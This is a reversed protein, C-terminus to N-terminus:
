AAARDLYDVFASVAVFTATALASILFALGVARWFLARDRSGDTDSIDTPDDVIGLVLLIGLVALCSLVLLRVLIWHEYPPHPILAMPDHLLTVTLAGLGVAIFIAAIELVRM